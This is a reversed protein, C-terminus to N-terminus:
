SYVSKCSPDEKIGEIVKLLSQSQALAQTTHAGPTECFANILDKSPDYSAAQVLNLFFILVLLKKIM